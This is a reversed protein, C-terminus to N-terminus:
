NVYTGQLDKPPQISSSSVVIPYGASNVTGDANVVYLYATTNNTIQGSNVKVAISKGSSDWSKPIQTECQGRSSWASGPCLEVRARTDDLYVDDSYIIYDGGKDHATYFSLTINQFNTGCTGTDLTYATSTNVIQYGDRFIQIQGDPIGAASSLKVYFEMKEWHGVFSPVPNRNDYYAPRTANGSGEYFQHVYHDSYMLTFGISPDCHIVDGSPGSSVRTLKINRSIDGSLHDIYVWFSYYVTSLAGIPKTTTSNYEPATFHSAVSVGGSHSRASSYTPSNSISPVWGNLNANSGNLGYNFDDWLIPTANTKPGFGSGTITITDSTQSANQILPAAFVASSSFCIFVTLGLVKFNM